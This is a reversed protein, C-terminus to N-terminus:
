AGMDMRDRVIVACLEGPVLFGGMAEAGLDIKGGGIMRPFMSHVLVRVAEDSVEKGLARVERCDMRRCHRLDLAQEIAPGSFRESQLRGVLDKM